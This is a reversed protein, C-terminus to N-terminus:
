GNANRGRGTASVPIGDVLTMGEDIMVIQGAIYDSVTSALFTTTGTYGNQISLGGTVDLFNM